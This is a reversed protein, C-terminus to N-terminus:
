ALLEKLGTTLLSSFRSAPDRSLALRAGHEVIGGNELILIDDAREVTDLRHAIIIGTRNTLLKTIAREILQETAPDLRSSAEDLIVVSPDALFCRAFALLQAQGASLGVGDSGLETDLGSPLARLWDGLGLDELISIISQDSFSGDFFTLNERVTAQFLQVDQTVMTVRQRLHSLSLAPVSTDNLRIEGSVPDYLRLLLRALTTKGSGTKGLLGLVKGPQLAFSVNDLVPEEDNEYTFTVDAFEIGAPGTGLELGEGDRVKSQTSLLSNLRVIGASARQLEQLQTRIQDIPGRLLETYHVILYVTGITIAQSRWLYAGFGFAIANGLAFTFIAASWMSTGAIYAKMRAPLWVRLRSYFRNMVYSVAGNARIDETGSLHETLFGYFLGSQQREETWHPVAINRLLTLVVVSFFAFASLALGVRYDERFLLGLVGLLLLVNALIGMVFKSFFVSVKNADGDIREIIEGSTHAKHFGMDLSLCHATVDSRLLNTATWGVDESVYSAYATVFASVLTVVMYFLATHSLNGSASGTATDIFVRLIQPRLLQLM